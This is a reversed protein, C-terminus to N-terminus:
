RPGYLPVIHQTPDRPLCFGTARPVYGTVSLSQQCTGFQTECQESTASVPGSRALAQNASAMLEECTAGSRGSAICQQVSRIVTGGACEGGGTWLYLMLGAIGAIATGVIALGSRM